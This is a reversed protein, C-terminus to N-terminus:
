SIVSSTAVACSERWFMERDLGEEEQWLSQKKDLLWLDPIIGKEEENGMELLGWSDQAHQERFSVQIEAEGWNSASWERGWGLGDREKRIQIMYCSGWPGGARSDTKKWNTRWAELLLIELLFLHSEIDETKIRWCNGLERPYLDLVRHGQRNQGRESEGSAWDNAEGPPNM